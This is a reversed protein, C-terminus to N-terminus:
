TMEKYAELLKQLDCETWKVITNALKKLEEYKIAGLYDRVFEAFLLPSDHAKAHCSACMCLLNLLNWRVSLKKRSFIHCCHLVSDDVKGCYVCYGKSRVLRSVIKDLKDKLKERESKRKRRKKRKRWIGM